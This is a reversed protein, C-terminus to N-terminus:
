PLFSLGIVINVLSSKWNNNRINSEAWEDSSPLDNKSTFQSFPLGFNLGLNFLLNSGMPTQTGFGFTPIFTSATLNSPISTIVGNFNYSTFIGEEVVFTTTAYELGFSFYKGVPNLGSKKFKKYRLGYAITNAPVRGSPYFTNLNGNSEETFDGIDTKASSYQAFVQLSSKRNLVFELTVSPKYRIFLESYTAGSLYDYTGDANYTRYDFNEKSFDLGAVMPVEIGVLFRKGMYGPAQAHSTGGIITTFIILIVFSINNNM